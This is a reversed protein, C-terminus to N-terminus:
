GGRGPIKIPLERYARAADAVHKIAKPDHGAKDFVYRCERWYLWYRILGCVAVIAFSIYVLVVGPEL